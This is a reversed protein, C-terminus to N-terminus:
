SRAAQTIRFRSELRGRVVDSEVAMVIVVGIVIPQLFADVDLLNMGNRIIGIMLAGVLANGVGGRGGLFSAGGIVVAAISDLEALDGFTPSGANLRGSTVIAAIGAALGSLVYVSIVVRDVPIATRRAGEPNGGVAYIWRGWVMRTTLLVVALAVAAVLFASYPLWGASGSGMMQVIEPMGQQPQGGSLWLALGRAASLTALTIIFPHPLRGLVYGMGNIAGVAMGTALMALVVVPGSPAASYVLAGTVSALALTSGVSLDIGRTLIVLLQGIALVAIVASQALVNGLNLMTLFAPSLMSMIVVLLLLILVPGLRIALLALRLPDSGLRRLAGAEVTM